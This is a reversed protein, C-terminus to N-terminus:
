AKVVRGANQRGTGMREECIGGSRRQGQEMASANSQHQGLSGYNMCGGAMSSDIMMGRMMVPDMGYHRGGYHTTKAHGEITPAIVAATALMVVIWSKRINQRKM